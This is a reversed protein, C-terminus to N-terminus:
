SWFFAVREITQPFHTPLRSPVGSEFTEELQVRVYLTLSSLFIDMLRHAFILEASGEAETDCRRLNM